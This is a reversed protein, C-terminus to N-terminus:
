KQHVVIQVNTCFATVQLPLIEFEREGPILYLSNQTCPKQRIKLTQNHQKFAYNIRSNSSQETRLAATIFMGCTVAQLYIVRNRESGAPLHTQTGNLKSADEQM